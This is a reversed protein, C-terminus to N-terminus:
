PNLLGSLAQTEREQSEVIIRLALRFQEKAESQREKSDDVADENAAMRIEKEKQAIAQAEARQRALQGMLEKAIKDSEASRGQLSIRDELAGIEAAITDLQGAVSRVEFILDRDYEPLRAAGETLRRIDAGITPALKPRTTRIVSEVDARDVVDPTPSLKRKIDSADVQASIPAACIALLGAAIVVRAMQFIM